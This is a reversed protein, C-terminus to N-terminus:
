SADKLAREVMQTFDKMAAEVEQRPGAIRIYLHKGPQDAPVMTCTYRYDPKPPEKKGVTDIVTGVGTFYILTRDGVRTTQESKEVDGSFNDLLRKRFDPQPGDLLYFRVDTLQKDEANPIIFRNLAPSKSTSLQWKWPKPRIFTYKDVLINEPDACLPPALFFLLLLALGFRTMARAIAYVQRFRSFNSKSVGPM